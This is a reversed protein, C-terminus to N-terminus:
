LAKMLFPSLSLVNQLLVTPTPLIARLLPDPLLAGLRRLDVPIQLRLRWAQRIKVIKEFFYPIKIMSQNVNKSSIMM